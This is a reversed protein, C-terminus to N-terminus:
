GPRDSALARLEMANLAAYGAEDNDFYIFVECAGQGFWGRALELWRRLQTKSYRGAYKWEAPGHLRVYAFDATLVEPSQEGALDFICFAVNRRELADYVERAFWSPDRFEMAYRHGSPLTALFAELRELNVRWHPPLQFLIPGLKEELKAAHALFKALAPEPDKLKKMHTIYRSAKVSFLFGPPTQERWGCFTQATPLHYFSNNIEVTGLRQAYFGLMADASLNQSYFPGRWHEYHWGSTGVHLRTEM